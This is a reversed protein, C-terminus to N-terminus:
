EEVRPLYVRFSTGVGPRSTAWISGGLQKVMGYVTALGMGSGAGRVRTSFFPEFIRARTEEDMGRGTDSVTLLVHPGPRTSPHERVFPEDLEVEETAVVLYGGDPMSERAHEVLHLLIERLREPDAHVLAPGPCPRVLLGIDSPLEERLADEHEAILANFGFTRLEVPQRGAYALLQRVLTRAERAAGLIEGLGAHTAAASTGGAQLSEASRLVRGLIGELEEAFGTALRGLSEHKQVMWARLATDGGPAGPVGPEGGAPADCPGPHPRADRVYLALMTGQAGDLRAALVEVPVREGSATIWIREKPRPNACALTLLLHSEVEDPDGKDLDRLARGELGQPAHGLLRELAANAKVIRRSRVDVLGIPVPSDRFLAVLLRTAASPGPAAAAHQSAPVTM